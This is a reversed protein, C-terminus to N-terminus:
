PQGNRWRPRRLREAYRLRGRPSPPCSCRRRQHNSDLTRFKHSPMAPDTRPWGQRALTVQKPQIQQQQQFTPQSKGVDRYRDALRLWAQAMHSLAIRPERERFAGAMELCKKARLRYEDARSLVKMRDTLVCTFAGPQYNTRNASFGATNSGHRRPKRRLLRDSGHHNASFVRM